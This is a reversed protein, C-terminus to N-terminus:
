LFFSCFDKQVTNYRGLVHLIGFCNNMEYVFLSGSSSHFGILENYLLCHRTGIFGYAVEFCLDSIFEPLFDVCLVDGFLGM